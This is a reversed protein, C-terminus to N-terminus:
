AIYLMHCREKSYVTWYVLNAWNCCCSVVYQELLFRNFILQSQCL